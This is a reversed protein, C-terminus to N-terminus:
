RAPSESNAGIAGLACMTVMRRFPVTIATGTARTTAAATGQGTVRITNKIYLLGTELDVEMGQPHLRYHHATGDTQLFSLRTQHLENVEVTSSSYSVLKSVLGGISTGKDKTFMLEQMAGFLDTPPEGAIRDLDTAESRFTKM